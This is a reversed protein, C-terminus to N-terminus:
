FTADLRITRYKAVAEEILSPEDLVLFPEIRLTLYCRRASKVRFRGFSGALTSVQSSPTMKAARDRCLASSNWFKLRECSKRWHCSRHANWRIRRASRTRISPAYPNSRTISRPTRHPCGASSDRAFFVDIIGVAAFPMNGWCRAWTVHKEYGSRELFSILDEHPISEDRAVTRALERYFTRERMRWLVAQIPAIVIDAEGTATRWLAVARAESIEAHPSRNEYPLVDHAPFHAVRRDPKGTIARYFWRVPEVLAEARQNSDVVLIAPRGLEAAALPVLLAKASDTFGAFRVEGGARRLKDCGGAIAPLRAIRALLESVLPLIM